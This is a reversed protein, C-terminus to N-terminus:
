CSAVARRAAWMVALRLERAPMREYAPALETVTAWGRELADSMGTAHCWSRIGSECAGVERVDALSVRLEPHKRVPLRPPEAPAGAQKRAIGRLAAAADTGHYSTAGSVALVGREVTASYGRGREVWAAAYLDVGGVRDLHRAELTLLGDVVALGRRSVTRLWERPVQVRIDLETAAWGRFQGRYVNRNGSKHITISAAGFAVEITVGGAAQGTWALGAQVEDSTRRWLRRELTGTPLAAGPDGAQKRRPWGHRRSRRQQRQVIAAEQRRIEALIDRAQKLGAGLNARIAVLTYPHGAQRYDAAEKKMEESLM